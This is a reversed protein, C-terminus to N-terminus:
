LGAAKLVCAKCMELMGLKATTSDASCSWALDGSETVYIVLVQKPEDDGFDELCKMLTESPSRAATM